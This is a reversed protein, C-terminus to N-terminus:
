SWMETRETVKSLHNDVYCAVVRRLHVEDIFAIPSHDFPVQAENGFGQMLVEAVDSVGLRETLRRHVPVLIKCLCRFDELGGDPILIHTIGTTM